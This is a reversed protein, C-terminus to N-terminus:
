ICFEHCDTWHLGLQEMRDSPCVSMVFSITAKRWKAFAGLASVCLNHCYCYCCPRIQTVATLINLSGCSRSVTVLHLVLKYHFLSVQHCGSCDSFESSM